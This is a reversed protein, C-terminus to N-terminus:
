RFLLGNKLRGNPSLVATTMGMTYASGTIEPLLADFSGVKTTSILKCKFMIGAASEHICEQDLGIQGKAYMAALHASCEAGCPSRDVGAGLITVSKIHTAGDSPKKYFRIGNTVKVPSHPHEVKVQDNAAQWISNAVETLQSVSKVDVTVGLDEAAVLAM